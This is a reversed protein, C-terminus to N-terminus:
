LSFIEDRMFENEIWVTDDTVCSAIMRANGNCWCSSSSIVGGRERWIKMSKILKWM